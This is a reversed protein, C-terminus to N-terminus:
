VSTVSGELNVWGPHWGGPHSWVKEHLAKGTGVAYVELNGSAPDSAAPSSV